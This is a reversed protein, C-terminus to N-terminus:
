LFVMSLLSVPLRFRNRRGTKNKLAFWTCVVAEQPLPLSVRPPKLGERPVIAIRLPPTNGLDCM